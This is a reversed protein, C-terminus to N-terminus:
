GNNKDGAPVVGSTSPVQAPPPAPPPKAAGSPAPPRAAVKTPAPQSLYNPNVESLRDVSGLFELLGAPPQTQSGGDARGAASGLALASLVATAAARQLWM